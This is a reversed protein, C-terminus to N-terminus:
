RPFWQYELREEENERESGLVKEIKRDM